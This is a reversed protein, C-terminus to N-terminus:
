TLGIGAASIDFRSIEMYLGM